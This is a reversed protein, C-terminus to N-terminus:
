TQQGRHWQQQDQPETARDIVIHRQGVGLPAGQRHGASARIVLSEGEGLRSAQQFDQNMDRLDLPRVDARAIRHHMVDLSVIGPDVHDDHTIRRAVHATAAGAFIDV